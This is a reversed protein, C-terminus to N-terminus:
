RRHPRQYAPHLSLAPEVELRPSKSPSFRIVVEEALAIRPLVIQRDRLMQVTEQLAKLDTIQIQGRSYNITGAQQLTLAHLTEPESSAGALFEQTFQLQRDWGNTDSNSESFRQISSRRSKLFQGLKTVSRL